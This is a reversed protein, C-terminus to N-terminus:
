VRAYEDAIIAKAAARKEALAVDIERVQRM